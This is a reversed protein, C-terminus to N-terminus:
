RQPRGLRQVTRVINATGDRPAFRYGNWALRALTGDALNTRLWRRANRLSPQPLGAGLSILWDRNRYEQCGIPPAMVVPLGLATYFVLESPKTWLIDTTRLWENFRAFYSPKDPECLIRVSRDLHPELGLRRIHRLLLDRLRRNIGTVLDLRLNRDALDQALNRLLGLAIEAQAGAGGIAFMLSPPDTRRPLGTLGLEKLVKKGETRLFAGEPDLAALRRALDKKLPTLLEEPLPFGTLVIRESPVGYSRLRDAVRPVSALYIIRSAAVDKRVWGRNIDTDTALCFVPGPYNHMDAMIAATFFTALIPLPHEALRDVLHRGWGSRIMAENPEIALALHYRVPRDPEGSPIRQFLFDYVAFALPGILPVSRFRSITNYSSELRRWVAADKPPIGDYDNVTIVGEASWPKLPWAARLHGYGMSAAVLHFLPKRTQPM